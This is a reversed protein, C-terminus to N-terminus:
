IPTSLAKRSPHWGRPLRASHLRCQVGGGAHPSPGGFFGSQSADFPSTVVTQMGTEDDVAEDDDERRLTAHLPQADPRPLPIRADPAWTGDEGPRGARLVWPGARLELSLPPANADDEPLVRIRKLHLTAPARRDQAGLRTPPVVEVSLSCAWGNGIGVEM